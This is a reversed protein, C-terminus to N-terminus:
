SRVHDAPAAGGGFLRWRVCGGASEALAVMPVLGASSVLNADDFVASRPGSTHSLQVQRIGKSSPRSRVRSFDWEGLGCPRGDTVAREGLALLRRDDTFGPKTTRRSGCNRRM